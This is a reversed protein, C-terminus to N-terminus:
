GKNELFYNIISTILKLQETFKSYIVKKMSINVIKVM